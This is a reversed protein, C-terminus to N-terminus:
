KKYETEGAEIIEIWKILTSKKLIMRASIMQSSNNKRDELILVCEGNIDVLSFRGHAFANRIHYFVSQFQNKKCDYASIRETSLDSPFNDLLNAKALAENMAKYSDASYLLKYNSASRKLQKNLWYPKRWPTKWNYEELSCGMASLGECPSHFVFFVIIRLLDRDEFLELPLRHVWQPYTTTSM